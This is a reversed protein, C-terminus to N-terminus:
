GFLRAKGCDPNGRSAAQLQSRAEDPINPFDTSFITTLQDADKDRLAAESADIRRELEDQWAQLDQPPDADDLADGFESFTDAIEGFARDSDEVLRRAFDTSAYNDLDERFGAGARCLKNAYSEYEASPPAQGAVTATEAGATVTRTVATTASPTTTRGTTTTAGDLDSDASDGCALLTASVLTFIGLGFLRRSGRHLM